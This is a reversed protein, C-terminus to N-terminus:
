GVPLNWAMRQGPRMQLMEVHDLGARDLATRFATPANESGPTVGYHMPIVRGVGLLRTAAAAEAPGMTHHDGIPLMALEPRHVEHILAMGAFAATDGAHYIRSGDSFEIVFGAALGVYAFPEEDVSSTHAAPTMTIRVGDLEVIGGINMTQIKRVGKSGLWKGLEVVTIIKPSRERAISFIDGLHDHHGHTILVLDVEGVHKEEEPCLPNGLTWPDVLVTKSEPTTFRVTSQGLFTIEVMAVVGAVGVSRGRQPFAVPSETVIDGVPDFREDSSAGPTAATTRNRAGSGDCQRVYM